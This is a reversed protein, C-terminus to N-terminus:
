GEQQGAGLRLLAERWRPPIRAPRGDAVRVCALQVDIVVLGTEARMVTQRLEVSAARLALPETVVM